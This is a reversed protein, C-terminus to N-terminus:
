LALLVREGAGEILLREVAFIRKRSAELEKGHYGEGESGRGFGGTGEGRARKDLLRKGVGSGNGEGNQGDAPCEGYEGCTGRSRKNEGEVRWM